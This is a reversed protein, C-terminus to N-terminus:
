ANTLDNKFVPRLLHRPRKSAVASSSHLRVYLRRFNLILNQENPDLTKPVLDACM